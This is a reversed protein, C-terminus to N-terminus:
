NSLQRDLDSPFPIGPEVSMRSLRNLISRKTAEDGAKYYPKAADIIKTATVSSGIGGWSEAERLIRYIIEDLEQM